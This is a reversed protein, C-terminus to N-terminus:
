IEQCQYQTLLNNVTCIPRSNNQSQFVTINTVNSMILTPYQQQIHSRYWDFAFLHQDVIIIDSRQQEIYHLYWLTYVAPDGSTILISNSPLTTLLNTALTRPTPSPTILFHPLNLAVTLIPLLIVATGLRNLSNKLLISFLLLAPLTFVLADGTNYTFAYILYACATTILWFTQRHRPSHYLAHLLLPLTLWSFQSLLIPLWDLFRTAYQDLPLAFLNPRYIPATVLWWWNTFTTPNGWHLPSSSHALPLLLLFPLL